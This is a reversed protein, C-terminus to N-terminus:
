AAEYPKVMDAFYESQTTEIVSQISTEQVAHIKEYSQTKSVCSLHRLCWTYQTVTIIWCQKWFVDVTERDDDSNASKEWGLKQWTSPEGRWGLDRLTRYLLKHNKSFHHM